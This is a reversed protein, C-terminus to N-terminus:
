DIVLDIAQINTNSFSCTNIFLIILLLKILIRKLSNNLLYQNQIIKIFHFHIFTKIEFGIKGFLKM